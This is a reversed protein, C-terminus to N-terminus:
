NKLIRIVKFLDNTNANYPRNTIARIAKKYLKLKMYIRKIALDGSFIGYSLYPYLM